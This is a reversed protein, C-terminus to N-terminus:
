EKKLEEFSDCKELWVPDFNFPWNFWGSKIGTQGGEVGIEKMLVDLFPSRRNMQYMTLMENLLRQRHKVLDPHECKIHCDGPINKEFM